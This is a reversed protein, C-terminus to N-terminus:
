DRGGSTFKRGEGGTEAITFSYVDVDRDTQPERQIGELRYHTIGLDTLAENISQVARRVNEPKMRVQELLDRIGFARCGPWSGQPTRAMMEVLQLVAEPEGTRKLFSNELRLPFAIFSM